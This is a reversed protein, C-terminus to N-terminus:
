FFNEFFFFFFFFFIFNELFRWAGGGEVFFVAFCYLIVECGKKNKEGQNM